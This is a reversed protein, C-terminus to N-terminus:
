CPAQAGDSVLALATAQLKDPMVAPGESALRPHTVIGAPHRISGASSRGRM